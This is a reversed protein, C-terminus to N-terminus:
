LSQNFNFNYLGSTDVQSPDSYIPWSSYPFPAVPSYGVGWPPIGGQVGVRPDYCLYPNVTQCRPTGYAGYLAETVGPNGTRVGDYLTETVGSNGESRNKNKGGWLAYGIGIGGVVGAVASITAVAATSIKRGSRYGGGEDELSFSYANTSGSDGGNNGTSTPAGSAQQRAAASSNNDGNNNSASNQTAPQTADAVDGSGSAGSSVGSSAVSDGSAAAQAAPASPNTAASTDSAAVQSATASEASASSEAPGAGVASSAVVSKEEDEDSVPTEDPLDSGKAQKATKKDLKKDRKKGFLGEFFQTVRGKLSESNDKESRQQAKATEAEVSRAEAPKAEVVTRAAPAPRAKRTSDMNLQGKSYLGAVTLPGVNDVPRPLIFACIEPIVKREISQGSREGERRAFAVLQQCAQYAKDFSAQQRNLVEGMAEFGVEHIQNVLDEDIPYYSDDPRACAVSSVATDFDQAGLAKGCKRNKYLGALYAALIDYPQGPAKNIAFDLSSRRDEVEAM